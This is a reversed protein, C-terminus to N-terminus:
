EPLKILFSALRSPDTVMVDHAVDWRVTQWVPDKEL